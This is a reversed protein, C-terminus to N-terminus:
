KIKPITGNDINGKKARLENVKENENISRRIKL